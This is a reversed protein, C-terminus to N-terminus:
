RLQDALSESCSIVKGSSEDCDQADRWFLDPSGHGDQTCSSAIADIEESYCEEM